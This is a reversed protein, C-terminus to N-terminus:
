DAPTEAAFGLLREQEDWALPMDSHLIRELSLSEPHRGEVIAIQIRPSLFALWAKRRERSGSPREKNVAHRRLPADRQRAAAIRHSEALARLMTMDPVPERLGALIRTEIGRRRLAFPVSLKLVEPAIADTAINLAHGLAVRHIEIAISGVTIVGRQILAGLLERGGTKMHKAIRNVSEVIQAGQRADPVALIGNRDASRALHAAVHTALMEELPEAPLRWGTADAVGHLLRNSVYYCYSKGRAKTQSPTLRDGAEDVLKGLLLAGVDDATDYAGRRPRAKAALLANQVREWQEESIIAPHSGTYTKDKHRIRGRYTPNTLLYHIQGRTFTRGGRTVGSPLIQERTRLGLEGARKEVLRINGLEDYLDFVQRMMGAEEQDCILSRAGQDGSLRYGLPVTGGMWLGKRKSAAIKDRIREATVEREFQAFSLLVNLTLRGMSTSTNFAQTVSVFSARAADLRDVLRAFDALSRTLRDIKYVVIMGIRGADVEAMLRQLGPRDLTGGSVGGDDFRERVLSWGEHRQSAIYAACAEYQADLSNFEQELGDETSKRTYIAARIAPRGTM